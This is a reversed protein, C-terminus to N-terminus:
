ISHYTETNDLKWSYNIDREAKRDIAVVMFGEKLSKVFLVQNDTSGQPTLYVFSSPSILESVVLSESAGSYITGTGQPKVAEVPIGSLNGLVLMDENRSNIAAEPPLIAKIGKSGLDAPIYSITASKPVNITREEISLDGPKISTSQQLSFLAILTLVGFSVLWLAFPMQNNKEIRKSSEDEFQLFKKISSAKRKVSSTSFFKSMDKSFSEVIEEANLKSANSERWIMFQKIDTLYNKVTIKSSGNELLDKTYRDVVSINFSPSYLKKFM